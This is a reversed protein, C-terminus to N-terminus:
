RGLEGIARQEQSKYGGTGSKMGPSELDSESGAKCKDDRKTAVSEALM